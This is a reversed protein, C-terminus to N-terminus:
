HVREAATRVANQAQLTFLDTALDLASPLDRGLAGTRLASPLNHGLSDVPLALSTNDAPCIPAHNTLLQIYEAQSEVLELNWDIAIDIRKPM